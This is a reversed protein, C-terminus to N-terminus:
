LDIGDILDKYNLSTYKWDSPLNHKQFNYVAYNHHYEFDKNNRIIHDYYSKQWKFPPIVNQNQGHKKIFQDRFNNILKHHNDILKNKNDEGCDAGCRLRVFAQGGENRRPNENSLDNIGIIRNANHSFQKKISFMVKSINFENGPHIILNLHDYIVCFGYSKFKKLEKCLKLEEIFFDCFIPEKFYPFNQFTKTVIFYISNEGYDRKQSNRHQNM